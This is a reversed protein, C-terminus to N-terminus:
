KKMDDKKMTDRKMSDKSMSDEPMGQGNQRKLHQGKDDYKKMDDAAFATPSFAITL